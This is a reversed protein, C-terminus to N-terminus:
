RSTFIRSACAFSSASSRSAASSFFTSAFPPQPYPPPQVTTSMNYMLSMHISLSRRSPQLTSVRTRRSVAVHGKLEKVM